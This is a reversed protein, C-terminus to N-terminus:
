LLILFSLLFPSSRVRQRHKKEERERREEPRRQAETDRHNM